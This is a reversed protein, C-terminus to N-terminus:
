EALADASAHDRAWQETIRGDCFASWLLAYTHNDKLHSMMWDEWDAPTMHLFADAVNEITQNCITM